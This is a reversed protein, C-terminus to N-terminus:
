RAVRAGPDAVRPRRPLTFAVEAGGAASEGATITGGHAEVVSRCIALGLGGTGPGGPGGFPAFVDERRDPAIGAGADAVAIRVVDGRDVAVRIHVASGPPAHRVANEVLNTVVQDLQSPDGDVLPVDDAVELVLPVDRVLRRLRQVCTAVVDAVDIAQLEPAFAGAEIRSMSLLNAVLRDLREVEDRALDLMDARTADDWASGAALDTIVAQITALPTRLDHSVSRLLAARQQDVRELAATRAAESAARRRTLVLTVTGVGVVGVVTGLLPRRERPVLHVAGHHRLV